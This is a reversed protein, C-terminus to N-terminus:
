LKPSDIIEELEKKINQTFEDRPEYKAIFLKYFEDDKLKKMLNFSEVDRPDRFLPENEDFINQFDEPVISGIKDWYLTTWKLWNSPILITPYYLITRSM